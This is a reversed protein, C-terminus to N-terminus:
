QPSLLKSQEEVTKKTGPEGVPDVSVEVLMSLTTETALPIVEVNEVFKVKKTTPVVVTKELSHLKPRRTLVKARKMKQAGSSTSTAIKQKGGQKRIPFYYNPYVFRIMDFVRNLRKKGRAGFAITMVEDEAKTYAGLLEDSTAEVAELWDDNPEDFQSRYRFTYRLYFWVVKAPALLLKKRCRATM